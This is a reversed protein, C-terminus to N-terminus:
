REGRQGSVLDAGTTPLVREGYVSELRAEFDPWTVKVPRPPPQLVAVLVNRRRIEVSEGGEVWRLVKLTEHKLERISAHKM